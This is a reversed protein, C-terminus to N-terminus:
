ELPIGKPGLIVGNRLLPACEYEKRGDNVCEDFWKQKETIERYFFYGCIFVLIILFSWRKIEFKIM